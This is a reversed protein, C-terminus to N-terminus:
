KAANYKIRVANYARRLARLDRTVEALDKGNCYTPAIYLAKLHAEIEGAKTLYGIIEKMDKGRYGTGYNVKVEAHAAPALGGAALALFCGALFALTKRRM